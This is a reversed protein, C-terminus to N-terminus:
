EVILVRTCTPVRWDAVAWVLPVFDTEAMVDPISLDSGPISLDSGPISLDSGAVSLDSGAVSLDFAPSPSTPAPSPPPSSSAPPSPLPQSSVPSPRVPSLAPSPFSPGVPRIAPRKRAGSRHHQALPHPRLGNHEQEQRTGAASPGKGPTHVVRAVILSLAVVAGLYIAALVPLRAYRRVTALMEAWRSRPAPVRERYAMAPARFPTWLQDRVVPIEDTPTDSLRNPDAGTAPWEGM